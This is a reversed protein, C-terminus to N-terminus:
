LHESDTGVDTLPLTRRLSGSGQMICTCGMYVGSVVCGQRLAKASATRGEQLAM